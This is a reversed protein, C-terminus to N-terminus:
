LEGILAPGLADPVMALPEEGGAEAIRPRARSRDSPILLAVVTGLAIVVAAFVLALRTGSLM